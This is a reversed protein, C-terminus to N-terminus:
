RESRAPSFRNSPAQGGVRPAKKRPRSEKAIALPDDELYIVSIYQPDAQMAPHLNWTTTSGYTWAGTVGPLSLM